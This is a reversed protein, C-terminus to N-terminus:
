TKVIEILRLEEPLLELCTDDDYEGYYIWFCTYHRSYECDICRYNKGKYSFKSGILWSDIYNFHQKVKFQYNKYQDYDYALQNLEEKLYKLKTDNM